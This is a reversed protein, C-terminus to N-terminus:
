LFSKTKKWIIIGTSIISLLLGLILFLPSTGFTKDIYRGGLALVVLPVAVAMGVDFAFAILEARTTPAGKKVEKNQVEQSEV